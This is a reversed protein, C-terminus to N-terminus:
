ISVNQNEFVFPLYGFGLTEVAFLFFEFLSMSFDYWVRHSVFTIAGLFLSFFM